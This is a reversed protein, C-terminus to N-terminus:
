DEDQAGRKRICGILLSLLGAAALVPVPWWLQGTQPLSPTDDDPAASPTPSSDSPTVTPTPTPTQSPSPSPTPTIPPTPDASAEATKRNTIVYTVGFREVEVTYGDPAIEAVTWRYGADLGDWRYAWGNEPSLIVTDYILGDRLLHVTIYPPRQAEFGDDEWIKLVRREVTGGPPTDPATSHKPTVTVAYSWGGSTQDPAPLVAFFPASAYVMGDQTHVTGVVLFLGPTLGSFTLRGRANTEGEALPPIGNLELYGQTALAAAASLSNLDIPCGSFEKTLTYRGEASVDAVRYLEFHAGVLPTDGDTYVVTLSSARATQILEAALAHPSIALVALACLLALIPKRKKM